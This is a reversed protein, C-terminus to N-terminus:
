KIPDGTIGHSVNCRTPPPAYWRRSRCSRGRKKKEQPPDTSNQPRIRRPMEYRCALTMFQHDATPPDDRRRTRRKARFSVHSVDRRVEGDMARETDRRCPTRQQRDGRGDHVGNLFILPRAHKDGPNHPARDQEQREHHGRPPHQRKRHLAQNELVLLLHDAQWKPSTFFM